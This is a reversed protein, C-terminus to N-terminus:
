VEQRREPSAARKKARARTLLQNHTVPVANCCKLRVYLLLVSTNVCAIGACRRPLVGGQVVGGVFGGNYNTWM